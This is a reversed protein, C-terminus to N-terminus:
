VIVSLTEDNLDDITQNFLNNMNQTFENISHGNSYHISNNSDTAEDSFEIPPLVISM